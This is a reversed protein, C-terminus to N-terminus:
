DEYLAARVRSLMDSDEREVETMLQRDLERELMQEYRIQDVRNDSGELCPDPTAPLPQLMEIDKVPKAFLGAVVGRLEATTPMTFAGFNLIAM